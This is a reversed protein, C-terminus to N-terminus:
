TVPLETKHSKGKPNWHTDSHNSDGSSDWLFRTSLLPHPINEWYGITFYHPFMVHLGPPLAPCRWSNGKVLKEECAQAASATPLQKQKSEEGTRPCDGDTVWVYQSKASKPWKENSVKKKGGSRRTEEQKKWICYTSSIATNNDWLKRSRNLTLLWKLLCPSKIFLKHASPTSQVSALSIGLCYLAKTTLTLCPSFFRTSPPLSIDAPVFVAAM